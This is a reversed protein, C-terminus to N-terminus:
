AMIFKIDRTINVYEPNKQDFEQWSMETRNWRNNQEIFLKKKQIKFFNYTGKERTEYRL